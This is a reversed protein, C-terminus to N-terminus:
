AQLNFARRRKIAVILLCVSTSGFITLGAFAGYVFGLFSSLGCQGDIEHPKCDGSVGLRYMGIAVALSVVLAGLWVIWLNLGNAKM